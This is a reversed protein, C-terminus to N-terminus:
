LVFCRRIAALWWAEWRSRNKDFYKQQSSYYLRKQERASPRSKGGHHVLSLSSRRVRYGRQRVTRCLDVDEFYLFFRPDFGGISRFLDARVFLGGGSVWDPERVSTPRGGWASPLLNQLIIRILTPEKGASWQEDAGREDILRMGLIGLKAESSFHTRIKALSEAQWETDPNLFGIIHGRAIKAAQNNAAGFGINHKNERCRLGYRTVLESFLAQNAAGNNIVIVEYNECRTEVAFLSELAKALYDESHYNVFVLSIDPRKM